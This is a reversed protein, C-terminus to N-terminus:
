QDNLFLTLTTAKQAADDAITYKKVRPLVEEMTELYLRRWTVSPNKKYEALLLSFRDADGRAENIVKERYAESASTLKQARGRAKPIRENRDGEAEHLVRNADGRASAVDKFSAAVTRPPAMDGVSVAVVVIGAGVADLRQGLVERMNAIIELKKSTFADDVRMSSLKKMLIEEAMSRMAEEPARLATLYAVPDSISWQVTVKGHLINEDGTLFESQWDSYLYDPGDEVPRGQGSVPASRGVLLTKIENANLKVVTAIPYPMRYHIGPGIVQPSVKGFIHVVAKEDANVVYIGSIAWLPVCLLALFKLTRALKSYKSKPAM